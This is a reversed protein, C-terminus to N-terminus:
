TQAPQILPRAHMVESRSVPRVQDAEVTVVDLTNGDASFIELEYGEHDGHIMVVVGIDGAELRYEPLDVALVVREHEQIM